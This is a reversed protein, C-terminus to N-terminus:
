RGGEEDTEFVVPKEWIALVLCGDDSVVRHRSGPPNIVLTGAGHVGNHDRQSGALVFIHEYGTHHHLAVSAGPQYRLLAAAPGHQGDGYLRSIDIGARLPEWRRASELTAAHLLHELRLCPSSMDVM